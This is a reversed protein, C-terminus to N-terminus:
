WSVALDLQSWELNGTDAIIVWGLSSEVITGRPWHHLNGAALIYPGLMKCGDERVWYPYDFENYGMRRMINIVGQMPLNYYTEKGSPGWNVGKSRTLKPGTWINEMDAIKQSLNLEATYAEMWRAKATQIIIHDEEYGLIRACDAMTHATDKITQCQEIQAQLEEMTAAKVEFVAFALLLIVIFIYGAKYYRSNM